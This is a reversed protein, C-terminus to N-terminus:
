DEKVQYRENTLIMETGGNELRTIKYLQHTLTSKYTKAVFTDDRRFGTVMIMNGRKFWGQEMIKGKGNDQKEKIQRNFMAYYDKTFKVTVVGTTTLIDVTFATNNKAIVTGVIRYLKYIPIDHNGRKFTKEVIPIEPMKEYDSIGYKQTDINILEHPHHYFCMAYMEWASIGGTAYKDWEAKLLIKNYKDLAEQQNKTLWERVDDMAVKYMKDWNKKRIHYYGDKIHEVLDTNFYETYFNIQDDDMLYDEDNSRKKIEKNFKYLDINFSLSEPLIGNEVLGNFNQLTLKKKPNSTISLYYAMIIYRIDINGYYGNESELKDFAGSKILSIVSTKKLPCRALFDNFSNFPRKSMIERIIPTGIQALGKFGILIEHTEPNPKFSFGSKNIDLASVKIGQSIVKNIAKALKSYNTAKEKKVEAEERDEENEEETDVGIELESGDDFDEGDEAGSSNVILCATNWYISDWMTAIYAEQYGVMSYSMSHIDSFGYGASPMVIFNWVYNGMAPSTAKKMIDEKLKPLKSMKKKSIIKRAANAEALTFGCIDKDMLSWMICEQSIALGYSKLMYRELVKQEAPTLGNDTMEKYWLSLNNKYRIYKNLPREKGEEAMLRIVGNTNSLDILSHPKAMKIGQSGVMSEFQFLNLIKGANIADWVKDINYDITEPDLYKDYAERLTLNKDIEGYEQLLTLATMIKDQASTLLFDYKVKGASEVDELNYQTIVDGRPTTMFCCDEYPDEDFFIVGSAHSSSGVILGGLGLIIDLLGPYKNVEKIFTTQPKRGKEENGYVCDEISYLFGRESPILSAIYQAADNDIGEPYEESRYGKCAMLVARKPKTTTFTAVLTCGLNARSVDDIGDYFKQGREEKIKQIIAPRKSPCLDLDIDGLSTTDWNMYREFPLNYRLPNSQVIGLLWHNLGAGASGRGAGITSGMEWMMDIYYKLTIPYKFMNTNLREGVTRKIDAEKELEDLYETQEDPNIKKNVFGKFCENIWYRNYEDDSVFMASLNKYKEYKKSNKEDKPYSPIDVKPITQNHRLDYEEIKDYIEKSTECCHEYVTQTIGGFSAEMNKIIDTEDQMYSYEYFSAVEREGDVSKLFAEHLFRDEKKLYHSDCSIECKVNYVKAIQFLKNNVIIQEKSAGPPLEIYFDEGFLDLVFDMFNVIDQYCTAATKEDEVKRAKEMELIKISLESGLCASTAIIHGKDRGIVEALESKLTPVRKM